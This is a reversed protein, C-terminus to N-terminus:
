PEGQYVSCPLATDCQTHLMKYLCKRIIGHNNALLPPSSFCCQGVSAKCAEWSFPIITQYPSSQFRSLSEICKVMHPKLYSDRFTETNTELALMRLYWKSDTIETGQM